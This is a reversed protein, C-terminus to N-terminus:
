LIQKVPCLGEGVKFRSVYNLIELCAAKWTLNFNAVMNVWTPEPSARTPRTKIFCGNEASYARNLQGKTALDLLVM